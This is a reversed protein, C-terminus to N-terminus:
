DTVRAKRRYLFVVLGAAIGLGALAIVAFPKLDQEKACVIEITKGPGFGGEATLTECPPNLAIYAVAGAAVVILVLLAVLVRRERVTRPPPRDGQTRDPEV